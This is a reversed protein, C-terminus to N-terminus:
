EVSIRECKPKLSLSKEVVPGIILIAPRTCKLAMSELNKIRGIIVKEDARDINSVFAAPTDLDLNLKRAANLIEGAYAHAMLAVTTVDRTKLIELWATNIAGGKLHASVILVGSSVGRITPTILASACGAFVSSVGSILEFEVGNEELFSMEEFARGFLSADGGKLRGVTKGDKALSLMLANIQEQTASDEDKGKGVNIIEVGLNRLIERTDEGVLKDSLAVDLLEFAELAGLTLNQLSGSGCSILFVKGLNERCKPKLIEAKQPNFNEIAELRALKLKPIFDALNRPLIKAIKDRVLAALSPSAGSTSVGVSLEGLHANATFYFDSLAPKDVVNLLYGLSKRESFLAQGLNEDGSADIIMEFGSLTEGLNQRTLKRIKVNKDAFFPELIKEALIEFEWNAAKLALFKQRAVKGAGILLARKPTLAVPLTM